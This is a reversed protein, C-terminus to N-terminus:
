ESVYQKVVINDIAMGANYRKTAYYMGNLGGNATKDTIAKREFVSTGDAKTITLYPTNDVVDITYSYWVGADLIVTEGETDNIVYETNESQKTSNNKQTLRFIYDGATGHAAETYATCDDSVSRLFLYSKQANNSSTPTLAMDFTITYDTNENVKFVDTTIFAGNNGGSVANVTDFTNDGETKLATVFRGTNSSTFISDAMNEFDNRYIIGKPLEAKIISVEFEASKGKYSVTVTCTGEQKSNFGSVTYDIVEMETGDEYHATVVMGSKDLREGVTYETKTPSTVSIGFPAICM